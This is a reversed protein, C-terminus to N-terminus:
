LENQAWEKPWILEQPGDTDVIEPTVFVVLESKHNLFDQSRFLTGLIPIQSLGFLGSQSRGWTEQILGSLAITNKGKLDFHSSVRNTKLAPLDDVMQSTDILSIETDISIKIAGNSDALPKVKLMVGHKKWEVGQSGFGRVRIPFEGGAHFEADGGSRCNLTPSALVKGLGKAELAKLSVMVADPGKFDPLVQGEVETPFKIGYSNSAQKSVEALIVSTRVLPELELLGSSKETRIGFSDFFQTARKLTDADKVSLFITLPLSQSFQFAGFRQADAQSKFFLTAEKFVEQNPKAQFIYTANWKQSLQSIEIWDKFVYLNGSVRVQGQDVSVELGMRKELHKKLEASFGAQSAELVRVNFSKGDVSVLTEGSKKGILLISDGQDVASLIKKSGVHVKGEASIPLSISGGVKLELSHSSISM